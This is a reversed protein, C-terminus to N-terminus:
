VLNCNHICNNGYACAHLSCECVTHATDWIQFSYGQALINKLEVIMSTTLRAIARIAALTIFQILDVMQVCIKDVM